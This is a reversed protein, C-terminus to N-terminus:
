DISRQLPARRARCGGARPETRITGERVSVEAVQAMSTGYGEMFSAASADPRCRRAGPPTCPRSRGTTSRRMAWTMRVM